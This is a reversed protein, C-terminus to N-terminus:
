VSPYADLSRRLAAVDELMRAMQKDKLGTASRVCCIIEAAKAQLSRGRTTLKIGVQREDARDRRRDIYGLAELRKLM